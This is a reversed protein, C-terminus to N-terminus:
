HRNRMRLLLAHVFEPNRRHLWFGVGLNLLGTILFLDLAALGQGLLLMALLAAAVMFLSNLINTAAISRSRHSARARTQLLTYLPVCYIGGAVGIMTLDLLIRLSGPQSLFHMASGSAVAHAATALYLDVAFLSLGILGLPVLGAEIRGRSFRECLLSGIGIGISFSALFLTTVSENGGLDRTFAPVQSLFMAGYFWFWSIAAMIIFLGKDHRAEALNRWTEVLPNHNLRLGPDAAAAAPIARSCAYGLLAIVLCALGAWVPATMGILLGGVITGLLIALFTSSEILANGGVLEEPRLHQPLIAYKLPGFLASHTGMLFLAGLLWPLSLQWFGIVALATILIELLKVWRILGSKEFKDALQGASASFLFFPLIFIGACANVLIGPDLTSLESGRFAILIVMANKMVNDNFAGLFQTLFLPLLRAERLLGFQTSM